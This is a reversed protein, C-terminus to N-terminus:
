RYLHWVTGDHCVTSAVHNIDPSHFQEGTALVRVICDDEPEDVVREVWVCLEFPDDEGFHVIKGSPIWNELGILPYKYVVRM